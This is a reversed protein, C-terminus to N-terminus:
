ANARNRRRLLMLGGLGLLSLSAPEPVATLQDRVAGAPFSPTSHLNYYFGSPNSIASTIAAAPLGTITGALTGATPTGALITNPNGFDIVPSGTTTIAGQHVHHASLTGDINTIALSFTASGTNGSGTGNDLTLTGIASGNPDGQNPTGDNAVEKAGNANINFIQSVAFSNAAGCGISLAVVGLFLNRV